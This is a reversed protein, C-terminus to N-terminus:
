KPTLKMVSGTCGTATCAGNNTWYVSEEDIAVNSPVTQNTALTFITPNATTSTASARLINGNTPDAWYVNTSDVAINWAYPLGSQLTTAADGTVSRRIVSAATSDNGNGTTNWGQSLVFLNSGFVTVYTAYDLNSVLTVVGTTGGNLPAKMVAGATGSGQGYFSWYLSTTDLAVSGPYYQQAYMTTVGGDTPPTLPARLVSGGRTDPNLGNTGTGSNAWFANTGNVAIGLPNGASAITVPAADPVWREVSGTCTGSTPCAGQNTWFVGGGGVALAWPPVSGTTALVEVPKYDRPALAVTGGEGSACSGPANTQDCGTTWFVGADAVAIAWPYRQKMALTQLCCPPATCVVGADECPLSPPIAVDPTGVHGADHGTDVPHTADPIVAHVDLTADKPGTADRTADHGADHTSTADVHPAADVGADDFLTTTPPISADGITVVCSAGSSGQCLSTSVVNSGCQGDSCTQDPSCTKGACSFDLAIPLVLPTNDILTLQRSAVICNAPVPTVNCENPSTKDIGEFVTVTFPGNGNPGPVVVLTGIGGDGGVNCATTQAVPPVAGDGIASSGAASTITINVGQYNKDCSDTSLQLTVETPSRCGSLLALGVAATGGLWRSPVFSVREDYRALEDRVRKRKTGAVHRRGRLVWM